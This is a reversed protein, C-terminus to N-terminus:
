RTRGTIETRVLELDPSYSLLNPHVKHAPVRELLPPRVQAVAAFVLVSCFWSRVQDLDKKPPLRSVFKLVGRFDYGKGVQSLLFKGIRIRQVPTLGEVEFIDVEIGPKHGHSVSEMVRVGGNYWAEINAGDRRVWSAHSYPGWTFWRISRSLGGLGRYLAIM